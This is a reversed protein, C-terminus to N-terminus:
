DLQRLYEGGAGAWRSTSGTVTLAYTSPPRRTSGCSAYFRLPAVADRRLLARLRASDQDHHDALPVRQGELGPVRFAAEVTVSCSSSGWGSVSSWPLETWETRSRDAM